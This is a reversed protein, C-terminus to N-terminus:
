AALSSAAGVRISPRDPGLMQSGTCQDIEVNVRCMVTHTYIYIYVHKSLPIDAAGLRSLGRGEPLTCTWDVSGQWYDSSKTGPRNRANRPVFTRDCALKAVFCVWM